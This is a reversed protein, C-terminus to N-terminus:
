QVIVNDGPSSEYHGNNTAQPCPSIDRADKSVIINQQTVGKTAFQALVEPDM